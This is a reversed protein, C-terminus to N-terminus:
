WEHHDLGNATLGSRLDLASQIPWGRCLRSTEVSDSKDFWWCHAETCTGLLGMMGFWFCSGLRRPWDMQYSLMRRPIILDPSSCPSISRPTVPRVALGVINSFAM